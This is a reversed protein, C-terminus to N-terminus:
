KAGEIRELARVRDLYRNIREDQESDKAVGTANDILLDQISVKLDKIDGSVTEMFHLSIYGFVSGLGIVVSLLINTLSLSQETKKDEVEMVGGSENHYARFLAGVAFVGCANTSVGGVM